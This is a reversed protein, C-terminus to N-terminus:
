SNNFDELGPLMIQHAKFIFKKDQIIIIIKSLKHISLTQTKTLKPLCMLTKYIMKPNIITLAFGMSSCVGERVKILPHLLTVKPTSTMHCSGVM